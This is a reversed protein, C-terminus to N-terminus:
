GDSDESDVSVVANVAKAARKRSPKASTAKKAAAKGDGTLQAITRLADLWDKMSLEARSMRLVLDTHADEGLSGRFLGSILRLKADDPITKILQTAALQGEDFPAAAYEVRGITVKLNRQTDDM